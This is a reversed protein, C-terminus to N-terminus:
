LGFELFYQYPLIDRSKLLRFGAEEFEKLVIEEAMKHDVPPGVPLEKKHFDVVVVRGQKKLGKAARKLYNVRDELHHYTDCIFLVDLSEPKLEPDDTKVVRALYNELHLKTADEKMYTVMSPEIDLGLATGGPAVSVAFLRTFYGTGAGLDAIVNGPKLNLAKVVEAPKQWKDREPDEFMKVWHEIDDFRQQSAPIHKSESGAFGASTCLLMIICLFASTTNKM